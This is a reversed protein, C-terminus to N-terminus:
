LKLEKVIENLMNESATLGNPPLLYKEIFAKRKEKKPDVNGDIINKVFMEIDKEEFGIEHCDLAEVGLPEIHNLYDEDYALYMVPKDVYLYEVAFSGCDHIMADSTTFLDVYEGEVLNTNVGNKWKNYYEDTKVKGWEPHQELVERLRPHPKFVMQISNVYKQSILLMLKAYKLFTSQQIYTVENKYLNHYPAWVIKICKNNTSKWNVGEQSGMKFAEYMPYGVIKCNDKYDVNNYDTKSVIFNMWLQCEFPKLVHHYGSIGKPYYYSIYCTLANRIRDIYYKNLTMGKYPNTFMIVDPKLLSLNIFHKKQVDYSSVVNYGKRKYYLFTENLVDLMKSKELSVQPCVLVIPNFRSDNQMLQYLYDYKWVSEFIALYVVNIPRNLKKLAMVKRLYWRQHIYKRWEVKQTRYFNVISCPICAEITHVIHSLKNSM